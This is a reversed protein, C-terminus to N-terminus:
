LMMSTQKTPQNKRSSSLRMSIEQELDIKLDLNVDHSCFAISMIRERAVKDEVPDPTPDKFLWSYLNAVHENQPPDEKLADLAAHALKFAGAIGEKM